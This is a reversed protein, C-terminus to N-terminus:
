PFWSWGFELRNYGNSHLKRAEDTLAETRDQQCSECLIALLTTIVLHYRVGCTGELFSFILLDPTTEQSTLVREMSLVWTPQMCSSPPWHCWQMLFVYMVDQCSEDKAITFVLHHLVMSFYFSRSSGRAACWGWFDLDGHFGVPDPDDPVPLERHFSSSIPTYTYTTLIITTNFYSATSISTQVIALGALSSHFTTTTAITPSFHVSSLSIKCRSQWQHCSSEHLCIHTLLSCM